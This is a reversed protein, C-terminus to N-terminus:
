EAVFGPFADTCSDGDVKLLHTVFDLWDLGSYQADLIKEM